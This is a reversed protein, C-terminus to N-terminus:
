GASLSEAKGKGQRNAEQIEHKRWRERRDPSEKIKKRGEKSNMNGETRIYMTVVIRQV